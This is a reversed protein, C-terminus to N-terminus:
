PTQGTHPANLYAYFGLDEGTLAKTILIIQGTHQGFHAVVQYIAELVSVEYNQLTAREVLRSAPLAALVAVADHVTARLREKLEEGNVGGRAAFERDRMRIDPKAAVGHGIWQRVNGCLHLVLNGVSNANEGGRFWIQDATLKDICTEIWGCNQTLKNSSYSLFLSEVTDAM